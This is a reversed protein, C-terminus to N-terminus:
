IIIQCLYSVMMMKQRFLNFSFLPYIYSLQNLWQEVILSLNGSELVCINFMTPLILLQGVVQVNRCWPVVLIGENIFFHRLDRVM